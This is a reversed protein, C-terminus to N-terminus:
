LQEPMKVWEPSQAANIVPILEEADKLQYREMLLLTNRLLDHHSQCSFLNRLGLNRKVGERVHLSEPLM